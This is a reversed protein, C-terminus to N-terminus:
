SSARLKRPMRRRRYDSGLMALGILVFPALALLAIDPLSHLWSTGVVNPGSARRAARRAAALRALTLASARHPAATALPKARLRQALARRFALTKTHSAAVKTAGAHAKVAVLAALIRKESAVTASSVPLAGSRPLRLASRRRHGRAHHRGHKAHHGAHGAHKAHHRAHRAHHAASRAAAGAPLDLQPAIVTFALVLGMLTFWHRRRHAGCPM